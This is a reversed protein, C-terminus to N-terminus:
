KKRLYVFWYVAGVLLSGGIINGITVPLLNGLLFQTITLNPFDAATKGISTWFASPAFQRILLGVPIFYMNAVSHEFGAAAFGSIPPIICLIRDTTTRASYTLWIALCVLGNCLMGLAIAQGFDLNVKANAITLASAGVVGGSFAYQGSEFIVLATLVSGVFNGAFVILWNRLLSRLSVKRSAWAMVIMNNGTFLEAGGVIVLILGLTFVLGFLLRIIGYPLVANAGATVTTSFIAGLAVFAGALVALVFMNTADQNAKKVGIQEAKLAMEAPLLADLLGNNAEM